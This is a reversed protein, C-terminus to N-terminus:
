KKRQLLKLNLEKKKNIYIITWSKNEGVECEQIWKKEILHPLWKIEILCKKIEGNELYISSCQVKTSDHPCLLIDSQIHTVECLKHKVLKCYSFTIKRM